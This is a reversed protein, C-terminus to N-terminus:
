NLKVNISPIAKIIEFSKM